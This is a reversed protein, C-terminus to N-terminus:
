FFGTFQARGGRLPADSLQFAPFRQVFRGVALRGELRAQSMGACQHISLGFAPHRNNTRESVLALCAERGRLVHAILDTKSLTVALTESHEQLAVLAKGTLNAITEHGAHLIFM